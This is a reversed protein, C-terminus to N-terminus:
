PGFDVVSRGEPLPANDVTYVGERTLVQYRQLCFPLVTARMPDACDMVQFHLHPGVSNGSNGVLGIPQGGSVRDGERVRVSGHRLHALLVHGVRTELVVHNGVLRELHKRFLLPRALTAPLGLLPVLRRRDPEGDHAATVVGDAPSFVPRSWGYMDAAVTSGALLSLAARKSIRNSQRDVGVLDFAWRAHGPPRLVRWRQTVPAQLTGAMGAYMVIWSDTM